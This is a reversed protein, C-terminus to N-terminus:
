PLLWLTIEQLSYRFRAPNEFPRFAFLGGFRKPAPAM